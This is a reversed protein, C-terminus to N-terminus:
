TNREDEKEFINAEKIVEEKSINVRTRAILIRIRM